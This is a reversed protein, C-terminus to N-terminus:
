KENNNNGTSKAYGVTANLSAWNLYVAYQYDIANLDYQSLIRLNDNTVIKSQVGHEFKQNNQDKQTSISVRYQMLYQYQNLSRVFNEFQGNVDQIAKDLTQTYKSLALKYDLSYYSEQAKLKGGDLVPTILMAALNWGFNNLNFAGSNSSFGISSSLSLQPYQAVGAAEKKAASQLLSVQAQKIDPRQLLFEKNLAYDKFQLIAPTEFKFKDVMDEIKKVNANSRGTLTLLAQIYKVKVANANNLSYVADIHLNSQKDLEAQTSFGVDLKNKIMVINEKLLSVNKELFNIRAQISKLQFYTTYVQNQWSLFGDEQYIKSSQVDFDSLMESFEKVGMLGPNYSINLSLSDAKTAKNQNANFQLDAKPFFSSTNIKKNEIAQQLRLSLQTATETRDYSSLLQSLNDIDQAPLGVQWWLNDVSISSNDQASLGFSKDISNVDTKTYKLSPTQCGGLFLMLTIISIKIKTHM